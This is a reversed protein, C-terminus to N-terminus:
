IRIRVSKTTLLVTHLSIQRLRKTEVMHLIVKQQYPNVLHRVSHLQQAQTRVM